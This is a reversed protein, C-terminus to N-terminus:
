SRDEAIVTGYNREHMYHLGTSQTVHLEIVWWGVMGRRASPRGKKFSNGTMDADAM